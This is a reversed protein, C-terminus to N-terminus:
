QKRYVEGVDEEMNELTFAVRQYAKPRFPDEEMELYEAILYFIKAIKLNNM